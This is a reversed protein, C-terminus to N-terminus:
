QQNEFESMITISNFMHDRWWKFRWTLVDVVVNPRGEIYAGEM